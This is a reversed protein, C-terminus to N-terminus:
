SEAAKGGSVRNEAAKRGSVRSLATKTARFRGTDAFIGTWDRAEGFKKGPSNGRAFLSQNSHRFLGTRMEDRHAVFRDRWGRGARHKDAIRKASLQTATNLEGYCALDRQIREGESVLFVRLGQLEIILDGIEQLSTGAVRQVLSNVSNVAGEGTESEVRRVSVNDNRYYERIREEFSREDVDPVRESTNLNM